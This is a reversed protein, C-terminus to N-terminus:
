QVDAVLTLDPNVLLPLAVTGVKTWTKVPDPESWVSAVLGPAEQTTVFNKGVLELAEATIGHQTVGLPEGAPPLLVVKDAAIVRTNVDDVKVQSDYVIIPPLEFDTLVNRLQGRTVRGPTGALSGVQVRIKENRLLNTVIATSMMFGGPGVGNTDRYVATWALLDDIPDSGALDSWMDAGALTNAAANHSAKRLFDITQAVGNENFTITGNVLADGRALELRSLIARTENAADDYIQRIVQALDGSKVAELKLREEEGLPIKESFPPLAGTYTKPARRKGIPSEADFARVKAANPQGLNGRTFRFETSEIFDNPLVQQLSLPNADIEQALGRVFGTLEVPDVADLLETPM